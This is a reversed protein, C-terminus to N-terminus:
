AETQGFELGRTTPRLARFRPLGDNLSVWNPAEAAYLHFGPTVGSSDDLTGAAVDIEDPQHAVHITLPSGCMRCVSREGFTTSAFSGIQEEGKEVIFDARAVTTFVMGGSGSIRQCIGCHCWGTDYSQAAFRYRVAGCACGGKVM